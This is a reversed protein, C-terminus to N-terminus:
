VVSKRDQGNEKTLRVFTNGGDTSVSAGAINIPNANRGRSDVYAVVIQNPNDPNSATSTTSQTVHPYTETGTILDVDTIGYVPSRLLKQVLRSFPGARSATGGQAEGCFIMIAGARLNVQKDIGLEHIKSCDFGPPVLPDISNATYSQAPQKMSAARVAFTGFGLLALIVGTLAVLLGIVFRLKLFGSQATLKKKM